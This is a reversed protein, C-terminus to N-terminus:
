YTGTWNPNQQMLPAPNAGAFKNQLNAPDAQIRGNAMSAGFAVGGPTYNPNAELQMGMYGRTAPTMNKLGYRKEADALRNDPILYPQHQFNTTPPAPAAPVPSAFTDVDYPSSVTPAVGRLQNFRNKLNNWGNSMATKFNTGWQGLTNGFRQLPQAFGKNWNRAWRDVTQDANNMMRMVRQGTQSGKIEQGANKLLDSSLMGLGGGVARNGIGAIGGIAGGARSAADGLTDALNRDGGGLWDNLVNGLTSGQMASGLTTGVYRGAANGTTKGAAGLLNGIGRGVAGAAGSLLGGAGYLLGRGLSYERPPAEPVATATPAVPAQATAQPALVSDAVQAPNAVNGLTSPTEAPAVTPQVDARPAVLDPRKSGVIDDILNRALDKGAVKKPPVYNKPKVPPPLNPFNPDLGAEALEEASLETDNDDTYTNPPPTTGNWWAGLNHVADRGVDKM